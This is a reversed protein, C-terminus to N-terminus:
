QLPVGSVGAGPRQESYRIHGGSRNFAASGTGGNNEEEEKEEEAAEGEGGQGAIRKLEGEAM